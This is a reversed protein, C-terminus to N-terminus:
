ENIDGRQLKNKLVNTLEETTLPLQNFQMGLKILRQAFETVKPLGLHHQYLWQPHNFFESTSQHAILNGHELAIVQDAYQAVDDMNHTVIIITMGLEQNLKQFISMVERKGIPDLGIIPEDLVLIQPNMALIGALAVRRMQGGSLEFPSRELLDQQLGVVEAAKKAIQEAETTSKGFNKPAFAIDKLVTEEFLQSESFQFLVGVQKRLEALQKNKTESTIEQNNIIVKGLTPKLLGNLHQILTSKGSGTHGVIATFSGDEIKLSINNLAKQAFPTDAQYEYSVNKFEIGM